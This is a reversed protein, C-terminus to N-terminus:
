MKKKDNQKIREGIWRMVPVAMSNGVARYAQTDSYGPVKVLYDDPFGQLRLAEIPTIRRIVKQGAIFSQQKMGPQASLAGVKQGDGNFLRLEDRTNQAFAICPQRQGGQATNLTPSKGDKSLRPIGDQSRPEFCILDTADKGDRAKRTSAKSDEQYEGFSIYRFTSCKETSTTNRERKERSKEIDGRLSEQEFLVEGSRRPDGSSHGVLFVRRRRQPVGFNQADLVRWAVGYGFESFAQLIRAFTEGKGMSLVGPVNEWVVWEPRLAGAMKIFEFTLDAREGHQRKGAISFDQCPTGGVLIDFKEANWNRWDLLSGFNTVEPYHHELVRCPFKEIESFGVAKFGLPQWAVSAAEIGSCVSLFKM